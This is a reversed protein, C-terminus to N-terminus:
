FQHRYQDFFTIKEILLRDHIQLGPLMSGSPIYRAEAIFSKIGAYLSFTVVIPGWFDWWRSLESTLNANAHLINKAQQNKKTFKIM